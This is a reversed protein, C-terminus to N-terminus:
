DFIAYIYSAKKPFLAEVVPQRAGSVGLDLRFDKIERWSQYCTLLRVAPYPPLRIKRQDSRGISDISIIQGEEIAMKITDEYFNFYLIDTMGAVMSDALRRELVPAIRRLFRVRDPIRIQWAYSRRTHGGLRKAIQVPIANEAFRLAIGKCDQRQAEAKLDRLMAMADAYNLAAMESCKLLGRQEDKNHLRYYGVIEDGRMLVHTTVMTPNGESLHEPYRWDRADKLARICYDATSADYLELIRDIDADQAPRTESADGKEKDDADPISHLDLVCEPDLPIAYEYGFQRYFYPIGRISSLHFGEHALKAAVITMQAQILGRCRYDERTGVIGIEGVKLPIDEYAWRAPLLCVSSVVEKDPNEVYLIDERRIGPYKTFADLSLYELEEEDFARRNGEAIRELDTQTEASRLILGDGLEIYLPYTVHKVDKPSIHKMAKEETIINKEKKLGVRYSPFTYPFAAL